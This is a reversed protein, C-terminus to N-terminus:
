KRLIKGTGGRNNAIKFAYKIKEKMVVGVVKPTAKEKDTQDVAEIWRVGEERATQQLHLKNGAM